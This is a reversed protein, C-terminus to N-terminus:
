TEQGYPVPPSLWLPRLPALLRISEGNMVLATSRRGACDGRWVLPTEWVHDAAAVQFAASVLAVSDAVLEGRMTLCRECSAMGDVVVASLVRGCEVCRPVQRWLRRREHMHRLREARSM